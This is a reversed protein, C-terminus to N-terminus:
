HLLQTIPPHTYAKADYGDNSVNEVSKSISILHFVFCLKSLLILLLLQAM